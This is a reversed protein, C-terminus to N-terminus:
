QLFSPPQAVEFGDWGMQLRNIKNKRLKIEVELRLKEQQAQFIEQAFYVGLAPNESARLQQARTEAARKESELNAIEERLRSIEAFNSADNEDVVTM